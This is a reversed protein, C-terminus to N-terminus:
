EKTVNFAQETTGLTQYWNWIKPLPEFFEPGSLRLAANVMGDTVQYPDTIMGEVEADSGGKHGNHSWQNFGNAGGAPVNKIKQSNAIPHWGQPGYIDSILYDPEYIAFENKFPTDPDDPITLRPPKSFSTKLLAPVQKSLNLSDTPSWTSVPVRPDTIPDIIGGDPRNLHDGPNRLHLDDVTMAWLAYDNVNYSNVLKEVADVPKHGDQNFYFAWSHQKLDGVSYSRNGDNSYTISQQDWFMEGWFAPEIITLTNLLTGSGGTAKYLRMSDTAVQTGLSHSMFRLDEAAVNWGDTGSGRVTDRIFEM